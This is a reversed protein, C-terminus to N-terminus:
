NMYQKHNEKKSDEATGGYMRQIWLRNQKDSAKIKLTKIDLCCKNGTMSKYNFNTNPNFLKHSEEIGSKLFMRESVPVSTELM